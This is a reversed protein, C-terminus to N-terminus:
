HFIHSGIRLGGIRISSYKPNYFGLRGIVTNPLEGGVIKTALEVTRQWISDQKPELPKGRIFSFQNKQFLVDCPTTQYKKTRNMIIDGVAQQGRASEGRAEYYIALAVCTVQHQNTTNTTSVATLNQVWQPVEANLMTPITMLIVGMM